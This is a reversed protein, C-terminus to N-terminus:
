LTVYFLFRQKRRMYMYTKRKKINQRHTHTHTHPIYINKTRRLTRKPIFVFLQLERKIDALSYLHIFIHSYVRIRVRSCLYSRALISLAAAEYFTFKSEPRRRFSAVLNGKKKGQGNEKLHAVRFSQWSKKVVRLDFSHLKRFIM